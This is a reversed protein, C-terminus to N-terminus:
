PKPEKRNDFVTRGSATKVVCRYKQNAACVIAARENAPPVEAICEWTWDSRTWDAGAPPRQYRLVRTWNPRLRTTIVPLDDSGFMSPVPDTPPTRAVLEDAGADRL